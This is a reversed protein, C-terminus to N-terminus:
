FKKETAANPDSVPAGSVQEEDEDRDLNGKLTGANKAEDITAWLQKAAEYYTKSAWPNSRDQNFRYVSYTQNKKNREDETSLLYRGAYIPRDGLSTALSLLSNGHKYNSRSACISLPLVAKGEVLVVFNHVAVADRLEKTLGKRKKFTRASEAIESNPDLSRGLIMPEQQNDRDGFRVYEKFYYAIVFGMPEGGRTYMVERLNRRVVDGIDFTKDKVEPSLDQMLSLREFLVDNPDINSKGQNGRELFDPAEALPALQGANPDTKVLPQPQTHQKAM